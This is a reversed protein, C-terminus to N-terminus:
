VLNSKTMYKFLFSAFWEHGEEDYHSNFGSQVSGEAINQGSAHCLSTYSYQTSFLKPYRKQDIHIKYAEFSKEDQLGSNAANWFLYNVGYFKFLNQLTLVNLYFDIINHYRDHTTVWSKYYNYSAFDLQEKYCDDNGVVLPCWGGDFYMGSDAFGEPNHIETRFMGPWLIVFFLDKVNSNESSIYSHLFEITTRVVRHNSAGSMALNVSECGILNGLYKPWAREYCEGQLPEEIEAGATHSCGNAVLIM